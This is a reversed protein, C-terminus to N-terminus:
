QYSRETTDNGIVKAISIYNIRYGNRKLTHYGKIGIKGKTEKELKRILDLDQENFHQFSRTKFVPEDNPIIKKIKMLLGLFDNAKMREPISLTVSLFSDIDIVINTM